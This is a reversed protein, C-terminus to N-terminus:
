GGFKNIRFPLRLDGHESSVSMHRQEGLSIHGTVLSWRGLSWSTNFDAISDEQDVLQMLQNLNVLTESVSEMDMM